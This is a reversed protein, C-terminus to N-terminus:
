FLVLQTLDLQWDFFLEVFHCECVKLHNDLLEPVRKITRHPLDWGDPVSASGVCVMFVITLFQKAKTKPGSTLLSPFLAPFVPSSDEGWRSELEGLPVVSADRLCEVDTQWTRIQCGNFCLPSCIGQLHIALWLVRGCVCVYVCQFVYLSVDAADISTPRIVYCKSWDSHFVLTLNELILLNKCHYTVSVCIFMCFSLMLTCECLLSCTRVCEQAFIYRHNFLRSCFLFIHACLSLWDCMWIWHHLSPSISCWNTCRRPLAVGIFQQPHLTMLWSYVM